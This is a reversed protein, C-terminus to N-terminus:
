RYEALMHSCCWHCRYPFHYHFHCFAQLWQLAPFLIFDLFMFSFISMGIIKNKKKHTPILKIVHSLLLHAPTRRRMKKGEKREGNQPLLAIQLRRKRKGSDGVVIKGRQIQNPNQIKLSSINATGGGELPANLM